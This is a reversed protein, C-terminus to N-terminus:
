TAGDKASDKFFGTDCTVSTHACKTTDPTCCSGQTCSAANTDCDTTAADTIALTSAACTLSDCHAKATCCNTKKLADTDGATLGDKASDKYFGTDCTVSTHACKTTDATCCLNQTCSAANTGCDTTAAATIANYNAPCTYSDCHAKATCCNTKTLAHTTGATVAAKATDWYESADCTYTAPDTLAFIGVGTAM